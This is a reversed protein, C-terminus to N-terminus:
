LATRSNLGYKSRRQEHKIGYDQHPAIRMSCDPFVDEEEAKRERHQQIQPKRSIPLTQFKWHNSLASMPQTYPFGVDNVPSDFATDGLGKSKNQTNSFSRSGNSPDFSSSSDFSVYTNQIPTGTLLDQSMFKNNQLSRREAKSSEFAIPPTIMGSVAGINISSSGSIGLVSGEWTPNAGSFRKNEEYRDCTSVETLPRSHKWVCVVTMIFILLFLGSGAGIILPLKGENVDVLDDNKDIQIPSEEAPLEVELAIETSKNYVYIYYKGSTLESLNKLLESKILDVDARFQIKTSNVPLFSDILSMIFIFELRKEM